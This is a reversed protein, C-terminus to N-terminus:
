ESRDGKDSLEKVFGLSLFIKEIKGDMWERDEDDDTEELIVKNSEGNVKTHWGVLM